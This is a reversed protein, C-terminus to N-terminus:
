YEMVWLFEGIQPNDYHVRTTINWKKKSWFFYYIIAGVFSFVMLGIIIGVVIVLTSDIGGGTPVGAKVGNIVPNLATNIVDTAM